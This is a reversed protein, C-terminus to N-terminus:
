GFQIKHPLDHKSHFSTLRVHRKGNCISKFKEEKYRGPFITHVEGFHTFAKKVAANSITTPLFMTVFVTDPDHRSGM